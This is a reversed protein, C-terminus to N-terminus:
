TTLYTLVFAPRCLVYDVAVLGQQQAVDLLPSALGTPQLVCNKAGQAVHLAGSVCIFSNTAMHIILRGLLPACTMICNHQFHFLM